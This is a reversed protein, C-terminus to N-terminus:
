LATWRVADTKAKESLGKSANRIYSFGFDCIKTRGDAGILLNTCKLDGHVVKESHLYALGLAAEHFRRWLQQKNTEVKFFDSFNGSPADECVFFLPSSVHCAGWLKVVHPHNMSSWVRAENFFSTEIQNGIMLLKKIVVHAGNWTGRYVAGYTGRNIEDESCFVDESPLYWAPLEEVRLKASATMANLTQQMWASDERSFRRSKSKDAIGFQMLMM